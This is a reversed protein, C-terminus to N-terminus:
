QSFNALFERVFGERHGQYADLFVGVWRNLERQGAPQGVVDRFLAQVFNAPDNRALLYYERSSLVGIRAERLSGTNHVHDAWSYLANPEPERGLYERYYQRITEEVYGHPAYGSGYVGYQGYYPGQALSISGSCVTLVIISCIYSLPKM